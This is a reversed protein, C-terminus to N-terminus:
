QEEQKSLLVFRKAADVHGGSAAKRYYSRAERNNKIGTGAGEECCLAYSYAANVNGKDAAIKLWKVAEAENEAIGSGHRLCWGYSYSADANGLEAAIRYCSTAFARNKKLINKGDYFSDGLKNMAEGMTEKSAESVNFSAENEYYRKLDGGHVYIGAIEAQAKEHGMAAAHSINEFAAIYDKMDGEAHALFIGLRYQAEVKADAILREGDAIRAPFEYNGRGSGLESSAAKTYWHKADEASRKIGKGEDAFVGMMLMAPVYGKRAARLIFLRSAGYEARMGIGRLIAIGTKYMAEADDYESAMKYLALARVHDKEAGIGMELCQALALICKVSRETYNKQYSMALEYSEVAKEFDQEVGIGYYYCEGMMYIATRSNLEAGKCFWSFANQTNKAVGLGRLYCIGIKLAASSNQSNMDFANRYRLFAYEYNRVAGLGEFYCNGVEYEADSIGRNAAETFWRYAEDPNKHTGRGYKLMLGAEYMATACGKKASLLYKEFATAYNQETGIGNDYCLALRYLAIPNFAKAAIEYHAFAANEDKKCGDGEECCIGLRCEANSNGLEAAKMYLETAYEKDVAVGHGHFYCGGLNNIATAHDNEAARTYLAVAMEYDIECGIGFERCIGLACLCDDEGSEAGDLFISVAKEANKKCGIGNIYCLGLYYYGQNLSVANSFCEFAQAKNMLPSGVEAYLRGLDIYAEACGKSAAARLIIIAKDVNAGVTQLYEATMRYVERCNESNVDGVNIDFEADTDYYDEFENSVDILDDALDDSADSLDDRGDIGLNEADLGLSRIDLKDSVSGDGNEGINVSEEADPIQIKINGNSEM